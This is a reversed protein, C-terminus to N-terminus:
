GCRMAILMAVLKQHDRNSSRDIRPLFDNVSRLLWDARAMELRAMSSPRLGGAEGGLSYEAPVYVTVLNPTMGQGVSPIGFQWTARSRGPSTQWILSIHSQRSDDLAISM